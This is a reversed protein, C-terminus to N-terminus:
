ALPPSRKLKENKFSTHCILVAYHLQKQRRAGCGEAASSTPNGALRANAMQDTELRRDTRHGM